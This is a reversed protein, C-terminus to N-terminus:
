GFSIDEGFVNPLLATPNGQINVSINVRDQPSTGSIINLRWWDAGERNIVQEPRIFTFRVTRGDTGSLGWPLSSSNSPATGVPAPGFRVPAVSRAGNERWINASAERTSSNYTMNTSTGSMRWGPRVGSFGSGRAAVGPVSGPGAFPVYGFVNRNPTAARNYLVYGSSNAANNSNGWMFASCRREGSNASSTLTTCAGGDWESKNPVGRMVRPPTEAVGNVQPCVESLVETGDRCLITLRELNQVESRRSANATAPSLLSVFKQNTDLDFVDVTVVRKQTEAPLNALYFSRALGTTNNSAPLALIAPLHEFAFVNPCQTTLQAAGAAVAPDSPDTSCPRFNGNSPRVRLSFAQNSMGSPFARSGLSASNPQSMRAPTNTANLANAQADTVRNPNVQVWFTVDRGAPASLVPGIDSWGNSSVPGCPPTTGTWNVRQNYGDQVGARPNFSGNDFIRWTIGFVNATSGTSGVQPEEVAFNANNARGLDIVSCSSGNSVGWNASFVQLRHSGGAPVSIGFYYGDDRFEPNSITSFDTRFRNGSPTTDSTPSQGWGYTPNAGYNNGIGSIRRNYNVTGNSDVINMCPRRYMPYTATASSDRFRYQPFFERSTWGDTMSEIRGGFELPHCRSTIALLFNERLSNHPCSSGFPSQTGRYNTIAGGGYPCNGTGLFNRPSGMRPPNIYEALATRKLNVSSSDLVQSFFRPVNNVTIDVKVRRRDSSFNVAVQGSSYGNQAAVRRAADRARNENPLFAAGALASADAAQQVSAARAYWSGLDIAFGTFGLLPVFLLAVFVLVYGKSSNKLERFSIKTSSM